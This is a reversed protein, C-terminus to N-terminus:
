IQTKTVHWTLTDHEQFFMEIYEVSEINLLLYDYASQTATAIDICQGSPVGLLVDGKSGYVFLAFGTSPDVSIDEYTFPTFDCSYEYSPEPPDGSTIYGADNELESVKTPVDETTIFNCDNELESVKTPVDETTIFNCDNELESM